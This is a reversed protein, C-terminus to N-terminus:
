SKRLRDLLAFLLVALVANATASVALGPTLFDQPRNLLGRRVLELAGQHVVFFVFALLLRGLPHDVDLRAGVSSAGYGVLTKAIGYLGIFERSIADQALGISMGLLLGTAPNRRSLGFYLTILFPLEVMVETRPFYKLIFGQLVLALFATGVVAGTHFKHVEIHQEPQSRLAM